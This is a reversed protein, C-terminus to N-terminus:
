FRIRLGASLSVGSFDLVAEGAGAGPSAARVGLSPLGDETLAYLTGKVEPPSINGLPYQWLDLKETGEWGSARALRYVARLVIEARQGLRAGLEAGAFAGPFAKWVKIHYSSRFTESQPVPDYGYRALRNYEFGVFHFAPGALFSVNLIAGIPLSYRLGARISLTRLVPTSNATRTGTEDHFWITDFKQALGYEGALGLALRPSL